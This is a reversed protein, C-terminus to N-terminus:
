WWRKSSSKKAGKEQESVVDKLKNLKREIHLNKKKGQTVENGM